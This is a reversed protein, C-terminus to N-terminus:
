PLLSRDIAGEQLQLGPIARLRRDIEDPTAVYTELVVDRLISGSARSIVIERLHLANRARIRVRNLLMERVSLVAYGGAELAEIVDLHRWMPARPAPAVAAAGHQASRLAGSDRSSDATIIQAPSTGLRTAPGSHEGAGVWSPGLGAGLALLM